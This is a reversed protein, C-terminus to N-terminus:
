VKLTLINHVFEARISRSSIFNSHSNSAVNAFMTVNQRFGALKLQWYTMMIIWKAVIFHSRKCEESLIV